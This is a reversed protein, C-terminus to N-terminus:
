GEERENSGGYQKEIGLKLQDCVEKKECVFRWVLDVCNDPCDKPALDIRDLKLELGLMKMYVSLQDMMLKQMKVMEKLDLSM